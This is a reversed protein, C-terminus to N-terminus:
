GRGSTQLWVAVVVVVVTAWSVIVGVSWVALLLRWLVDASKLAVLVVTLVVALVFLVCVVAVGLM